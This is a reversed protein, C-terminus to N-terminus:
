PTYRGQTSISSVTGKHYSALLRYDGASVKYAYLETKKKNLDAKSTYLENSVPNRFEATVSLMKVMGKDKSCSFYTPTVYYKAEYANGGDKRTAYSENDQGKGNKTVLITYISREAFTPVVTSICMIGCLILATIKKIFKEKKMKM